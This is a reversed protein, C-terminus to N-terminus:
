SGAPMLTSSTASSHHNSSVLTTDVVSAFAARIIDTSDPATVRVTVDDPQVVPQPAITLSYPGPTLQGSLNLTVQTHTGAAMEVFTSYVRWGLEGNTELAYPKGDLTASELQLPSYVSLYLRNTGPPLGQDNSGLVGAALGSEPAGNFLDITATASVAGTREDYVARYEVDRELYVDTKNNASNQHTVALLDGTTTAASPFAGTLGASEFLENGSPSWALLRGQDVAPGLADAAVGPDPFDASLLAEFVAASADELASERGSRDGSDFNEYQDILLYDVANDASLVFGTTPLTVPGTIRLLAALGVPDIAVVGDVPRGTQAVLDAAVGAVTPFDPSFTVDQFHAEPTFRSWRGVYDDPANLTAGAAELDANLDRARGNETMTLQGRDAELIAWSGVFGGLGRAEAPTTFLLLYSKPSESGLIAPLDQAALAATAVAPELDRMEEVFDGLPVGVQPIIWPSEVADLRTITRTVTLALRELPAAASDIASLNLRGSNPRLDDLEIRRGVGEAATALATGEGAAVQAARVHQGVVPVARTAITLPSSLWASAASLRGRSEVLADMAAQHDGARADDVGREALAVGQRVNHAAMAAALGGAVLSLMLFGLGAGVYRKLQRRREDDMLGFASTLVTASLLLAVATETGHPGGIRLHFLVNTGLAGILAGHLRDRDTSAAHAALITALCGLLLWPMAAFVTAGGALTAWTWRRSRSAALTMMLALGARYTADILWLETPSSSSFIAAAAAAVAGILLIRQSQGRTTRRRTRHSRDEHKHPAPVAAPELTEVPLAPAGLLSRPAPTTSPATGFDTRM